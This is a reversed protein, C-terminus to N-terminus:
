AAIVLDLFLFQSRRCGRQKSDRCRTGFIAPVYLSLGQPPDYSILILKQNTFGVLKSLRAHLRYGVEAEIASRLGEISADSTWPQLLTLLNAIDFQLLNFLETQYFLGPPLFKTKFIFCM